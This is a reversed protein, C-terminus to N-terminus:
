PTTVEQPAYEECFRILADIETAVAEWSPVQVRRGDRWESVRGSENLRRILRLQSVIVDAPVHQGTVVNLMGVVRGAEEEDAVFAVHALTGSEHVQWQGSLLRYSYPTTTPHTSM